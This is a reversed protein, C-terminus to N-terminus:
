QDLEPLVFEETFKQELVMYLPKQKAVEKYAQDTDDRFKKRQEEKEKMKQIIDQKKMKFNLDMKLREEERKKQLEAQDQLIRDEMAKIKM